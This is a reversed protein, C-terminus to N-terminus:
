RLEARPQQDISQRGPEALWLGLDAFRRVRLLNIRALQPDRPRTGRGLHMPDHPETARPCRKATLSQLDERRARDRAPRIDARDVPQHDPTSVPSAEFQM